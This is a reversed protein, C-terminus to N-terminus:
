RRRVPWRSPVSQAEMLAFPAATVAPQPARIGHVDFRTMTCPYRAPRFSSLHVTKQAGLDTKLSCSKRAGLTCGRPHLMLIGVYRPISWGTMCQRARGSSYGQRIQGRPLATPSKWTVWQGRARPTLHGCPGGGDRRRRAPQVHLVCIRSGRSGGSRDRRSAARGPGCVWRARWGSRGRRVPRPAGSTRSM